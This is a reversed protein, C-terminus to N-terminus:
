HRKVTIEGNDSIKITTTKKNNTENSVKIKIKITDKNSLPPLEPYIVKANNIDLLAPLVPPKEIFTLSEDKTLKRAIHLFPFDLNFYNKSSVYDFGYTSDKFINSINVDSEIDCKTRCFVIPINNNRLKLQFFLEVFSEYSLKTYDIFMIVADINDWSILRNDTPNPKDNIHFTIEGASTNFKLTFLRETETRRYVPKFVGDTHRELFTTKGCKSSGVLAVNYQKNTNEM